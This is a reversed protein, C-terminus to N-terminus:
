EYTSVLFGGAFFNKSGDIRKINGTNVPEETLSEISVIKIWNLDPGLLSDGVRLDDVGELHKSISLNIFRSLDIVAWKEEGDPRKVLLPHEFTIQLESGDELSVKHMGTRRSACTSAVVGKAISKANVDYGLIEDGVAVEKIPKKEGSAMTILTEASVCSGDDDSSTICDPPVCDCTTSTPTIPPYPADWSHVGGAHWNVGGGLNAYIQDGKHVIMGASYPVVSGDRRQVIFEYNTNYTYSFNSSIGGGGLTSGSCSASGTQTNTVTAALAEDPDLKNSAQALAHAAVLLSVAKFVDKKTM